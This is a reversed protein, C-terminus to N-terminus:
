FRIEIRGFIADRARENENTGNPKLTLRRVYEVGLGVSRMSFDGLQLEPLISDEMQDDFTLQIGGGFSFLRRSEHYGEDNDYVKGFDSFAYIRSRMRFQRKLQNFDDLFFNPIEAWDGDLEYALEGHTGYGKDGSIEGYYFGRGIQGGGLGFRETPLLISSSWQGKVTGTLSIAGPLVPLLPFPIYKTFEGTFKMYDSSSTPRPSLQSDPRTGGLMRWGKHAAVALHNYGFLFPYSIIPGLGFDPQTDAFWGGADICAGCYDFEASLRTSAGTSRSEASKRSTDFVDNLDIDSRTFDMTPVLAMSFARSQKVPITLSTGANLVKGAYGLDELFGIPQSVGYGAWIEQSWPRTIPNELSSINDFARGIPIRASVRGMNQEAGYTTLWTADIRDIWHYPLNMGINMLGQFEGLYPSGGNDSVIYGSYPRQRVEVDLESTATRDGPKITSHLVVGPVAQVLAVCREIDKINTPRPKNPQENGPILTIRERKSEPETKFKGDALCDNFLRGTTQLLSSPSDSNENEHIVVKSVYGEVMRLAIVKHNEWLSQEPLYAQSLFYGAKRYKATITNRHARVCNFLDDEGCDIDRFISYDNKTNKDRSIHAVCIRQEGKFYTDKIWSLNRLIDQRMKTSHDASEPDDGANADLYKQVGNYINESDGGCFQDAGLLVVFADGPIPSTTGDSERVIMKSDDTTPTVVRHGNYKDQIQQNSDNLQFKMNAVPSAPGGAALAPFVAGMLAAIWLAASVSLKLGRCHVAKERMKVAQVLQNHNCFICGSSHDHEAGDTKCHLLMGNWKKKICSVYRQTLCRAFYFFIFVDKFM